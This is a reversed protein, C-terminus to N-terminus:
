CLNEEMGERKLRNTHIEMEILTEQFKEWFYRYRCKRKPDEQLVFSAYELLGKALLFFPEKPSTFHEIQQLLFIAYRGMEIAKQEQSSANQIAERYFRCVRELAYGYINVKGQRVSAVLEYNQKKM